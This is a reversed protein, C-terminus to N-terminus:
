KPHTHASTVGARELHAFKALFRNSDSSRHERRRFTRGYPGMTETAAILATPMLLSPRRSIRPSSMPGESASVNQVAEQALERPAAQAADLQRDGVDVFADFGNNGLYEVGSPLMAANVEHTIDQGVRSSAAPTDDIGAGSGGERLGARAFQRFV